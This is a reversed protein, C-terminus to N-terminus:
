RVRRASIQGSAVVTGSSYTAYGSVYVTTTSSISVRLKPTNLAISGYIATAATVQNYLAPDPLTASVLSTWCIVGSTAVTVGFRINADVDWDGATLSISTLNTVTANNFTVASATLIVSSIVEGVRGAAANSNTTVGVLAVGSTGKGSLTLTINSDTGLASITPSATTLASAINVYNVSTSAGTLTLINAASVGLNNSFSFGGSGKTTFLGTVNADTGAFQFGPFAGTVSNVATIFNVASAAGTFTLVPINNAQDNIANILPNNITPSTGLVPAGTGTAVVWAPVGSGNTLLGASNVTALGTVTNAGNSYLINSAAYTDAFTATSYVNSTGDSRIIKGAAGVTTPFTAASWTPAGAGGSQLLQGSTGVASLAIATSTSYAISGASATLNANTGGHALSVPFTINGFQSYNFATVDVAVITVSNYWATGSLTAGNNIIILGTNNIETPTDYTTARTLVWNTIASGVDSVRYIGENQASALNKVLVNSNLPPSVGDLAFIAQAGANTLTAGVGSGSQTVTLNTTTAAYVSTGTLSNLDVYNKTAFDSPQSPDAGNNIQFGGMNLNQNQVGLYQINTQVAQPLTQSWSPVGAASSQMVSSNAPTIVAYTNSGTTYILNNAVTTLGAISALAANYAQVNVGIQLGLNIRAQPVNTLDSLNNTAKLFYTTPVMTPLAVGATINGWFTNATMTDFSITGANTIPGGTLGLGTNIQTVTGGSVITSIPVSEIATGAGNMAWFENGNLIPLIINANPFSSNPAIVASYNYRPAILQNVLEAQQDVLTLIGFDNNLMSPTFNTNTYLNERDAPTMRTITVIDGAASPTVLTVQVELEAGIFTVSYQSPYSLIQTEDDPADGFPTVYVVVDSAFNATWNTGFDVQNLIATAQTYPLIDGIVVDSM